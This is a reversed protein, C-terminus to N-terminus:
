LPVSQARLLDCLQDLADAQAGDVWSIREDRRFWTLQRKAYNRTAQQMRELASALNIEGRLYALVEVYGVTHLAQVHESIGTALLRQTEEIMGHELMEVCRANIAEYLPGRERTVGIRVVRYPAAQRPVDWTTSFATGTAVYHELARLVRVPNRDAYREAARPDVERLEDYLADRGEAALRRQLAARVRPDVPVTTSLGELAAQIYLGSGGVMVPTIDSPMAKIAARADVMFQAADYTQDPDRIDICHHVVRRRDDVTPKATGIDLGRFVTRADASVIQIHLVNSLAMALASKGAATPGCLLVVTREVNSAVVTRGARAASLPFSSPRDLIWM